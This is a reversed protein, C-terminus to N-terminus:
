DSAKGSEKMLNEKMREDGKQQKETERRRKKMIGQRKERGKEM